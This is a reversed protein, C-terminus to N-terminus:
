LPLEEWVTTVRTAGMATDVSAQLGDESPAFADVVQVTVKVLGAGAPPALTVSVLELLVRLTGPDTVTGAVAVVAVKLAVVVDIGLGVLEM